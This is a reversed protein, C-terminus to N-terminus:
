SLSLETDWLQNCAGLVHLTNITFSKFGQLEIRKYDNDNEGLIHSVRTQYASFYNEINRKIKKAFHLVKESYSVTSYFKENLIIKFMDSLTTWCTM